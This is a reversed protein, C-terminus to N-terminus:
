PNMDRICGDLARATENWANRNAGPDFGGLVVAVYSLLKGNVTRDIVACDHFGVLGSVPSANGVGIKSSVTGTTLSIADAIPRGVGPGAPDTLDEKMLTLMDNCTGADGDFLQRLKALALLQAVQKPNAVFNTTKKYHASGRPSLTMLDDQPPNTKPVWDGSRYNGSIWLGTGPGSPHGATPVFPQFFGAVRLLRNIYPFGIANIVMSAATNNSWLMMLKQWHYFTMQATPTGFEGVTHIASEPAPGKRFGVTGDAAVTFMKNLDPIQNINLQPFEPFARRIQQGWAHRAANLIHQWFQETMAAPTKVANVLTQLRFRLEFAAYMALTKALSGVYFTQDDFFGAYALAAAGGTLDVVAAALTNADDAHSTRAAGIVGGEHPPVGGNTMRTTLFGALTNSKAPDFTLAYAKAPFPRIRAAQLEVPDAALPAAAQAVQVRRYAASVLAPLRFRAAWASSFMVGGSGDASGGFFAQLAAADPVTTSGDPGIILLQSQGGVPGPRVDLGYLGFFLDFEDPAATKYASLLAPLGTPDTAGWNGLGATILSADRAKVSDLRGQELGAVLLLLEDKHPNGPLLSAADAALYPDLAVRGKFEPGTYNVANVQAKASHGVALDRGLVLRHIGSPPDAASGEVPDAKGRQDAQQGPTEPVERPIVLTRSGAQHLADALLTRASAAATTDVGAPLPPSLLATFRRLVGNGATTAALVNLQAPTAASLAALVAKAAQGAGKSDLARLTALLLLVAESPNRLAQIWLTAVPTAQSAGQAELALADPVPLAAPPTRLPQRLVAPFPNALERIRDASVIWQHSDADIEIPLPVLVGVRHFQWKNDAALYDKTYAAIARALVDVTPAAPGGGSAVTTYLPMLTDAIGEFTTGQGLVAVVRQPPGDGGPPGAGPHKLEGNRVSAPPFEPITMVNRQLATLPKAVAVPLLEVLQDLFSM